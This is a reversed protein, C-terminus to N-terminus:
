RSRAAERSLYDLLVFSMARMGVPVASDDVLFTPTHHDGSVTGPKHGGLFYFFGPTANAFFSFDEAGTKPENM